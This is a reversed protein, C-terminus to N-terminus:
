LTATNDALPSETSTGISDKPSDSLSPSKAARSLAALMLGQRFLGFFDAYQVELCWCLVKTESLLRTAFHIECRDPSLLPWAEQGNVTDEMSVQHFFTRVLNAHYAPTLAGCFSEIAGGISGAVAPLMELINAEKDADYTGANQLGKIASAFAPGFKQILQDLQDRAAKAMLPKFRYRVGDIEKEHTEIM